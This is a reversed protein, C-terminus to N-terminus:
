PLIKYFNLYYRNFFTFFNDFATLLNWKPSVDLFILIVDLLNRKIM